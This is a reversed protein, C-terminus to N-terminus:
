GSLAVAQMDSSKFVMTLSFHETSTRAEHLYTNQMGKELHHFLGSLAPPSPLFGQLPLASEFREEERIFHNSKQKLLFSQSIKLGDNAEDMKSTKIDRGPSVENYSFFLCRSACGLSTFGLQAQQAGSM